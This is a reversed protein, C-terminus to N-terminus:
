RIVFIHAMRKAPDLRLYNWAGRWTYDSRRDPGRRRVLTPLSASSASRCKSGDTSCTTRTPTPAVFVVPRARVSTKSFWLL